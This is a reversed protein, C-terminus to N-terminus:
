GRERGQTGIGTPAEYNDNLSGITLIAKDLANQARTLDNAMKWCEMEAFTVVLDHISPDLDCTVADLNTLHFDHDKTPVFYFTETGWNTGGTPEVTFELAAGDYGTIIFYEGTSIRYIPADDYYTVATSLEQSANGTFQDGSPTGHAVCGFPHMLPSPTQLYKVDINALTSPLVRVSKSFIWYMPNRTSAELFVNETKKLHRWNLLAAYLGNTNKINLIGEAGRLVDHALNDFSVAGSSVAEGADEHELETLYANNFLHAVMVQANELARLKYSDTFKQSEPDEIRLGLSSLMKLVNM